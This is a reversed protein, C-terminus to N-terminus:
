NGGTKNTRMYGDRQINLAQGKGTGHYIYGDKKNENLFEEISTIIKNKPM